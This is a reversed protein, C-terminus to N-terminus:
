SEFSGLNQWLRVFCWTWCHLFCGWVTKMLYDSASGVGWWFFVNKCRALQYQPCEIGGFSGLLPLCKTVYMNIKYYKVRQLWCISIACYKRRRAKRGEKTIDEVIGDVELVEVNGTPVGLGQGHDVVGTEAEIETEQATVQQHFFSKYIEM